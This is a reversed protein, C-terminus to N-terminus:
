RSLFGIHRKVMQHALLVANNSAALDEADPLGVVLNPSPDPGALQNWEMRAHISM